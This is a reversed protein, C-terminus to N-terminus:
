RRGKIYFTSGQASRVEEVELKGSLVGEEDAASDVVMQGKGIVNIMKPYEQPPPEPPAPPASVDESEDEVPESVRSKKVM